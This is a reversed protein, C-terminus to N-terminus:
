YSFIDCDCRETLQYIKHLKGFRILPKCSLGEDFRNFYIFWLDTKKVRNSEKRERERQLRM